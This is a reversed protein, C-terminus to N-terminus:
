NANFPNGKEAAYDQIKEVRKNLQSLSQDGTLAMITLEVGRPEEDDSAAMIETFEVDEVRKNGSAKMQKIKARQEEQKAMLADPETMRMQVMIAHTERLYRGFSIEGTRFQETLRDHYSNLTIGTIESQEAVAYTHVKTAERQDETGYSAKHKKEFPDNGHTLEHIITAVPTIDDVDQDGLRDYLTLTGDTYKMSGLWDATEPYNRERRVRSVNNLPLGVISMAGRVWMEQRKDSFKEMPITYPSLPSESHFGVGERNFSQPKTGTRERM